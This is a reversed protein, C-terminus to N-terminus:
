FAKRRFMKQTRQKIRPLPMKKEFKLKPSEKKPATEEKVVAEKSPVAKTKKVKKAAGKVQSLELSIHSTKKQIQAARGRSQAHWRKLTPGEDVFIKSIYLDKEDIQFNNKANSLASKLLKLLPQSARKVTFNLVRQAEEASRGRILDAVLRVKRPAIHLHKLKATVLM